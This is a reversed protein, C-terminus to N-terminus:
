KVSYIQFIRFAAKFLFQSLVGCFLRGFCNLRDVATLLNQEEFLQKYYLLVILSSERSFCIKKTVFFSRQVELVFDRVFM